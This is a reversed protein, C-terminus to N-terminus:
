AFGFIGRRRRPQESFGRHIKLSNLATRANTVDKDTGIAGRILSFFEARINALMTSHDLKWEWPPVSNKYACCAIDFQLNLVELDEKDYFGYQQAQNLFGFFHTKAELPGPLNSFFRALKEVEGKSTMPEKSEEPLLQREAATLDGALDQYDQEGLEPFGPVEDSPDKM